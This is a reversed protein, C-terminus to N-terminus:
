AQRERQGPRNKRKPPDIDIDSDGDGKLFGVNLAPLFRSSPGEDIGEEDSDSESGSNVNSDPVSEADSPSQPALKTRKPPPSDPSGSISGSEWGAADAAADEPDMSSADDQGGAEESSGDDSDDDLGVDSSEGEDKVTEQKVQPRSTDDTMNSPNGHITKPDLIRRLRDIVSALRASLIKSSNLKNEVKSIASTTHHETVEKPPRSSDLVKSVIDQFSPNSM